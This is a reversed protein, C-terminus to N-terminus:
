ENLPYCSYTESINQMRITKRLKYESSILDDAFTALAWTNCTKVLPVKHRTFKQLTFCPKDDRKNQAHRTATVPIGLRIKALGLGQVFLTIVLRGDDLEFADGHAVSITEDLSVLFGNGRTTVLRKRRLFREDYSLVVQDFTIGGALRRLSHAAPLDPM